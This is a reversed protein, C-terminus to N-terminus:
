PVFVFRLDESFPISLIINPRSLSSTIPPLGKGFVLIILDPLLSISVVHLMYPLASLPITSLGAPFLGSLFGICLRRNQLIFTTHSLNTKKRHKKKNASCEAFDLDSIEQKRFM